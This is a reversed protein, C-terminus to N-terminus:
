LVYRYRIRLEHVDPTKAVTTRACVECRRIQMVDFTSKRCTQRCLTLQQM